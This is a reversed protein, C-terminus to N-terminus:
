NLPRKCPNWDYCAAKCPCGYICGCMPEGKKPPSVKRCCTPEYNLKQIKPTPVNSRCQDEANASRIPNGEVCFCNGCPDQVYYYNPCCINPM